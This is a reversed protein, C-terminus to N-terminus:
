LLTGEKIEFSYEDSYSRVVNFEENMRNIIDKKFSDSFEIDEENFDFIPEHQIDFSFEVIYKNDFENRINLEISDELLYDITQFNCVFYSLKNQYLRNENENYVEIYDNSNYFDLSYYSQSIQNKINNIILNKLQTKIENTIKKM